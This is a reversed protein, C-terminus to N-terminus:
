VNELADLRSMIAKLRADLESLAAATVEENDLITTTLSDVASQLEVKTATEGSVNESIANVRENLENLAAATVEENDFIAKAVAKNSIANESTESLETDIIVGSGGDEAGAGGAASEGTTYLDDDIKFAYHDSDYTIQHKFGHKDLFTLAYGDGIEIGKEFRVLEDGSIGGGGAGKYHADVVELSGDTHVVVDKLTTFYITAVNIFAFPGYVPPYLTFQPSIVIGRSEEGLPMLLYVQGIVGTAAYENTIKQLLEANKEKNVFDFTRAAIDPNNKALEEVTTAIEKFGDEIEEVKELTLGFMRKWWYSPLLCRISNGLVRGIYEKLEQTTM